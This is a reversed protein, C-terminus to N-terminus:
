HRVLGSYTLGVWETKFRFCGVCIMEWTLSNCRWWWWTLCQHARVLHASGGEQIIMVTLWGLSWRCLWTHLHCLPWPTSRWRHCALVCSPDEVEQPSSRVCHMVDHYSLYWLLSCFARCLTMLAAWWREMSRGVLLLYLFIWAWVVLNLFVTERGSTDFQEISLLDSVGRKGWECEWMCVCVHVCRYTCYFSYLVIKQAICLMSVVSM